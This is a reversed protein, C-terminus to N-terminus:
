SAIALSWDHVGRVDGEAPEAARRVSGEAVEELEGRIRLTEGGDGEGVFEFSKL